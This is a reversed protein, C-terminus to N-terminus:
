AEALSLYGHSDVELQWSNRHQVSLFDRFTLALRCGAVDGPSGFELSLDHTKGRDLTRPASLAFQTGDSLVLTASFDLATNGANEVTVVYFAEGGDRNGSAFSSVNLHPRVSQQLALREHRAAEREVELQLKAVEVLSRQQEVSRNLEEAQLRLADSSLRLEDGQQLYGLVLWLFALPAFAGAMFDGWENPTMKSVSQPDRLLVYTLAALWALSVVFGAALRFSRM